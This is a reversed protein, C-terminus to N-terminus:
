ENKIEEIYEYIIEKIQNQELGFLKGIIAILCTVVISDGACHFIASDTLDYEYMHETDIDQFGMLRMAEKPTLKRIRFDQKVVPRDITNLTISLDKHTRPGHGYGNPFTTTAMDGENFKDIIESDIYRRINGDETFLKAETESFECVGVECTTKLTQSMGYQVNGRQHHMRSSINIGDGEHAIRYGDETNEKILITASSTTSGSQTTQTPALDTLETKNYPNFFEPVLGGNESLYEEYKKTVFDDVIGVKLGNREARLTPADETFIRKERNEYLDDIIFNDTVRQGAATTICGAVGSENTLKLSSEFRSSRDFKSKKQNIGTLYNIMKQSLYYKKDVKNKDELFDKLNYKRPIPRPFKYNLNEGLISVMFTRERNQPIGFDKANLDTYFNCYGLEELRLMWKEFNPYDKESHIAPVNEMILIQPKESLETLIREVEWLLGSRTGGESQSIDMGKRLGALSLDQCPFSYTLIYEYKDTDVIELDKGHVDMINLLNHNAICNNYANKIWKLPKKALQEESLPKNYDVSIGNIRALMEEKAKGESYDTFDRNHIANCGIISNYAWECTKYSEVPVDLCDCLFKLAKYQAEIGSFFSILRVPKSIKYETLFEDFLSLQEFDDM